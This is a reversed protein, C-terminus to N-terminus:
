RKRPEVYKWELLDFVLEETPCPIEEESRTIPSSVHGRMGLDRFRKMARINLDKPGTRVFLTLGWNEFDTCFIDVPIGTAVHVLFKNLPGFTRRGRDDLRYNLVGKTILRHLELDLADAALDGVPDGFLNSQGSRPLMARAVDPICVLEIDGVEEAERRLSGAIVIRECVPSILGLLELAVPEAFNPKYRQKESPAACSSCRVPADDHCRGIAMPCGTFGYIYRLMQELYVWQDIGGLLLRDKKPDIAVSDRLGRWESALWEQGRHLRELVLDCGVSTRAARQRKESREVFALPKPSQATTM